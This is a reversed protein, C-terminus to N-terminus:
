GNREDPVTATGPNIARSDHKVASLASYRTGGDWWRWRSSYAEVTTYFGPEDVVVPVSITPTVASKGALYQLQKESYVRGDPYHIRLTVRM